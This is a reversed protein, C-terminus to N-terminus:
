GDGITMRGTGLTGFGSREVLSDSEASRRPKFLPFHTPKCGLNTQIRHAESLLAVLSGAERDHVRGNVLSHIEEIGGVAIRALWVRFGRSEAGNSVGHVFLALVKSLSGTLNVLDTSILSYFRFDRSILTLLM